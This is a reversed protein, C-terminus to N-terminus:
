PVYRIRDRAIASENSAADRFQVFVTKTGEGGKLRWPVITAYARWAATQLGTQSNSIRMEAVGSVMVGTGPVPDNADLRLKVSRNSTRPKGNNITMSGTPDTEDLKVTLNQAVETNGANDEASYTITTEGETAITVSATDGPDPTEAISQAGTASYVIEKVDSGGTDAANLSVTVDSNNWGSANPAPSVGEDTTPAATDLNITDQATASVNGAIDRYQVRVTKEGDGSSVPWSKSTAFPEWASWTTGDNSFRMSAVGSGGADDASLALNVTANNTYAADGNIVVTGTPVVTDADAVALSHFDGSAVHTAGILQIAQV